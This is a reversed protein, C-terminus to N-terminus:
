AHYAGTKIWGWLKEGELVLYTIAGFGAAMGVLGVFIMASVGASDAELGIDQFRAFLWEGYQWLLWVTPLPTLLAIIVVALLRKLM